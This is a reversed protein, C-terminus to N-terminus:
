GSPLFTADAISQVDVSRGLLRSFIHRSQEVPGTTYFDEVGARPDDTPRARHALRRRLQRAVAVSSEVITVDPGVLTRIQPELFVYHTCGLVITDAGADLLGSLYRWLLARTVEGDFDGLEVQEVLGPCPQLVLRTAQGFERCLKDIAPSELTRQTAMVGVVGSRTLKVAPKIAPEMAVIPLECGARLRHIAVVTATNCAVVIAKARARILFQVMAAARQEIFAASRDGYPANGSDAAYLFDEAPLEQRLARLVSLGGVGSDFVGIPRVSVTPDHM